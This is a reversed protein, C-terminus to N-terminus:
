IMRELLEKMKDGRPGIAGGLNYPQKIGEREFGKRPPNLRFYHKLGKVDKLRTEDKALAAALTKIDAYKSNEKVYQDTLRNDGAIRGREKLIAEITKEDVPGWTIYDKAKFIM